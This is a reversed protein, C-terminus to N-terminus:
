IQFANLIIAWYFYKICNHVLRRPSIAIANKESLHEITTCSNITNAWMVLYMNANYLIITGDLKWAVPVHLNCLVQSILTEVEDGNIFPNCFCM